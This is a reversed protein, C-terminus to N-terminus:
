QRSLHPLFCLWKLLTIWCGLDYFNRGEYPLLSLLLWLICPLYIFCIFIRRILLFLLLLARSAELNLDIDLRSYYLSRKRVKFHYSLQTSTWKALSTQRYLLLYPKYTHDFDYLLIHYILILDFTEHPFDLYLTRKVVFMDCRHIPEEIILLFYIKYKLKKWSAVQFTLCFITCLWLFCHTIYDKLYKCANCMHM